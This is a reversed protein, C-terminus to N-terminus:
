RVDFERSKIWRSGSFELHVKDASLYVEKVALNFTFLAKLRVVPPKSFTVKLVGHDLIAEGTIEAPLALDCSPRLLSFIDRVMCIVNYILLTDDIGILQAPQACFSKPPHMFGYLNPFAFPEPSIIGDAGRKRYGAAFEKVPLNIADPCSFSLRGESGLIDDEKWDQMALLNLVGERSCEWSFSMVNCEGITTEVIKLSEVIKQKARITGASGYAAQAPHDVPGCVRKVIATLEDLSGPVKHKGNRGVTMQMVGSSDAFRIQPYIGIGILSQKSYEIRLEDNGDGWTKKLSNCVPCWGDGHESEATYVTVPHRMDTFAANPNFEIKPRAAVDSIQTEVRRYVSEIPTSVAPEESKEIPTPLGGAQRTTDPLEAHDNAVQVVAIAVAVDAAAKQRATGAQVEAAFSFVSLFLLMAVIRIQLNKM